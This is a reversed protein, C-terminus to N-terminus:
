QQAAEKPALKLIFAKAGEEIDGEDSQWEVKTLAGDVGLQEVKLVALPKEMTQKLMQFRLRSKCPAGTWIYNVNSVWLYDGVKLGNKAGANIIMHSDHSAYVRTSWQLNKQGNNELQNMDQGLRNFSHRLADRTVQAIQEPFELVPSVGVGGLNLDVGLRWDKKVERIAVSAGTATLTLPEYAHMDLGMSMSKVGFSLGPLVGGTVGGLGLSVGIDSKLEFDTATGMLLVDPLDKSCAGSSARQSLPRFNRNFRRSYLDTKDAFSMPSYADFSVFYDSRNIQTLAQDNLIGQLDIDVQGPKYIRRATIGLLSASRKLYRGSKREEPTKCGENGMFLFMSSVLTLIKIAKKFTMSLTM